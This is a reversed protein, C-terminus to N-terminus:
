RSATATTYILKDNILQPQEGPAQRREFERAALM